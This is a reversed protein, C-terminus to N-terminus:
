SVLSSEVSTAPVAHGLDDFKVVVERVGDVVLNFPDDEGSNKGPELRSLRHGVSDRVGGGGGEAGVGGRQRSGIEDGPHPERRPVVDTQQALHESM